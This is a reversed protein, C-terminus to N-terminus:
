LRKIGINIDRDLGKEKLYEFIEKQKKPIQRFHNAGLLMLETQPLFKTEEKVRQGLKGYLSNM